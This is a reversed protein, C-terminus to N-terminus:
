TNPNGKFSVRAHQILAPVIDVGIYKLDPNLARLHSAWQQDGCPLDVILTVGRLHSPIFVIQFCFM